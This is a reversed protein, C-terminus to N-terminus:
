EILSIRSIQDIIRIKPIGVFIENKGEIKHFWSVHLANKEEDNEPILCFCNFVDDEEVELVVIILEVAGNM